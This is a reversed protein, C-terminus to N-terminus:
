IVVRTHTYTCKCQYEHPNCHTYTTHTHIHANVGGFIPGFYGHIYDIKCCAAHLESLEPENELWTCPLGHAAAM